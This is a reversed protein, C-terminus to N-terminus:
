AGGRANLVAEAEDTLEYDAARRKRLAYAELDKQKFYLRGGTPKYSPIKGLHVLKYLYSEKYKLFIAADGIGMIQESVIFGEYFFNTTSPKRQGVGGFCSVSWSQFGFLFPFRRRGQPRLLPPKQESVIGKM